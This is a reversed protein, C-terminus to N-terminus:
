HYVMSLLVTGDHTRECTAKSTVVHFFHCQQSNSSALYGNM